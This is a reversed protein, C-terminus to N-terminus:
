KKSVYRLLVVGSSFTRTDLLKLTLPTEQFLRTGSGLVVPYVLLRYEDILQHQMLTQALRGSGYILIDQDPQQKLATVDQVIDSSLAANWEAARLSRSAVLKPLSNMQEADEDQSRPWAAAFGQYTVRGLLLVDCAAQEEGKFQAIDDTWYPATWAPNEIM